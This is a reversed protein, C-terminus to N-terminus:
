WSQLYPTIKGDGNDYYQVMGLENNLFREETMKELIDYSYQVAM